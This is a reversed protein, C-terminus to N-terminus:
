EHRVGLARVIDQHHVLADILPEVATTTPVHRRSDAYTAFDSLVREPSQAAGLRKVERLIMANYGRGLNTAIMGSMVGWGIQPNSIVHAAVDKISWGACLSAYEWLGVPLGRLTDAMARREAHIHGWLEDPEM